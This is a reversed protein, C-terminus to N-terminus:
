RPAGILCAERLHRPRQMELDAALDTGVRGESFLADVHSM